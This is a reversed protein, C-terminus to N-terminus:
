DTLMCLLSNIEIQPLIEGQLLVHRVLLSGLTPQPGVRDSATDLATADDFVSAAESLPADAIQHPFQATGQM